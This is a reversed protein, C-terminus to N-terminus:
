TSPRVTRPRVPPCSERSLMPPTWMTPSASCTRGERIQVDTDTGVRQVLFVDFWDRALEAGYKEVLGSEGLIADVPNINEFEVEDATSILDSYFTFDHETLCKLAINQAVVCGATSAAPKYSKIMNDLLDYFM